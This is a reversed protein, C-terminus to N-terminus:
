RSPMMLVVLGGTILCATTLYRWEGNHEYWWYGEVVLASWAFPSLGEKEVAFQGMTKERLQVWFLVSGLDDGGEGGKGGRRGKWGRLM